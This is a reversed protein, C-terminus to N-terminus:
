EGGGFGAEGGGTGACADCFIEDYPSLPIPLNMGALASIVAYDDRILVGAALVLICMVYLPFLTRKKPERHM